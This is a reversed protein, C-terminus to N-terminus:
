KRRGFEVGRRDSGTRRDVGSRRDPLGDPRVGIGQRRDGSNRGRADPAQEGPVFAKLEMIARDVAAEAGAFAGPTGVDEPVEPTEGTLFGKIIGM